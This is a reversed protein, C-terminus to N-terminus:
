VNAYIRIHWIDQGNSQGCYFGCKDIDSYSYNQLPYGPQFTWYGGARIEGSNERWYEIFPYSGLNHEIEVRNAQTTLHQYGHTVNVTAVHTSNLDTTIAGSFILPCYIKDTDFILSSSQRATSAVEQIATEPILGYVRLYGTYATSTDPKITVVINTSNAKVNTMRPLMVMADISYVANFGEDTSWIAIPLPTFQLNHKITFNIDSSGAPLNIKQQKYFVVKDMPYDSNFIFRDLNTAM